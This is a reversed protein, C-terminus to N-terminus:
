VAFNKLLTKDAHVLLVALIKRCPRCLPITRDLVKRPMVAPGTNRCRKCVKFKIDWEVM